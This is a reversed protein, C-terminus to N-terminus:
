CAEPGFFESEVGALGIEGGPSFRTHRPGRNRATQPDRSQLPALNPARDLTSITAHTTASPRHPHDRPMQSIKEGDLDPSGLVTKVASVRLFAIKQM